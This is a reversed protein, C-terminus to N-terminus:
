LGLLSKLGLPREEVFEVKDQNRDKLLFPWM